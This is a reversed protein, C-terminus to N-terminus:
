VGLDYKGYELIIGCCIEVYVQTEVPDGLLVTTILMSPLCIMM